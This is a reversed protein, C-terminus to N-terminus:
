DWEEVQNLDVLVCHFVYFIYFVAPAVAKINQM